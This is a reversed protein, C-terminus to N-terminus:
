HINLSKIYEKENLFVSSGGSPLLVMNLLVQQFDFDTNICSDATM